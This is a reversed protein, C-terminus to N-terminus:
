PSDSPSQATLSPAPTLTFGLRAARRELQRRERERRRDEYAEAREPEFLTQNKLLAYVVRALKHATAVIAQQPGKRARMARFFAGFSSDSRSVSQAAQRFAQAARNAVKLTRSRIVKGGSTDNRPVLGLWACFQKSSPFRSMDTGVESIITLATSAALGTVAVLDVGVIRALQARANFSPQNRSRSTPKAAPLDPLPADPSGRSEMQQLARELRQDCAAVKASYDDFLALAQELIFLQEDRWSGTLAQAIKECSSKCNAARHQALVVPDREGAVIARIITLGTLGTIDTVVESLQLNMVKLEQQIHLIHPARHQLLEARYRVLARLAVIEADPRFSRGLLGLAHLRQLWQADNWDSKRDPVIKIHRANVLFPTIGRQELLEYVPIWYVGTAELAVTTIRCAVLWDVLAHLDPTFSTFSRVPQPDHDPPVAAVIFEAGIDLGAADPQLCGLTEAHSSRPAAPSM